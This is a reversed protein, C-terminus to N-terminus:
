KFLHSAKEVVMDTISANVIQDPNSDPRIWDDVAEQPLVVPMRDHIKMLAESPTRTLITFVPYKLGREEEIRYLGALCTMSASRPQIAYKDGTVVKGDPRQIHEWEFYCSAIVICRHRHWDAAFSQKEKATEVRANVVPRRIGPIHYGWVMPFAAKGGSVGPALVTTMDTVHIEGSEKFPKGLKTVMRQRLPSRKAMEVYPRLESSLEVYYRTCM